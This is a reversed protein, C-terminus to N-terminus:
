RVLGPWRAAVAPVSALFACARAFMADTVDTMEHGTEYPVYTARPLGRAWAEVIGHPVVDDHLGQLVLTPAEVRPRPPHNAADAVLGYGIPMSRLHAHHFVDISGDREWAALRDAFRERIRREYDVAPAMLVLAAVPHRSAYLSAVYGGLSSGFLVVPGEEAAVLREVCALMRTVSLGTFDGEDLEPTVVPMGVAAGLEAFRTAKKSKPGSAFGHLYLPM